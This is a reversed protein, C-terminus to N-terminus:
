NIHKSIYGGYKSQNNEFKRLQPYAVYLLYLHGNLLSGLEYNVICLSM